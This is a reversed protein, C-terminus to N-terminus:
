DGLLEGVRRLLDEPTFPKELVEGAASLAQDAYGSTYLVRMAPREPAIREVLASGSMGPLVIDTVLLDIQEPTGSLELAEDPGSAELVSYGGRELVERVVSRVLDEDEVLLVRGARRLPPLPAKEQIAAEDLAPLVITFTSGAGLESEVEITGGSQEVIGYVTALGLGTGKGPEKTTFFPEFLHSRAEPGIGIGTDRVELLADRGRRRTAITLRGGDPMADRANVVLNLMVQELQGRDAHVTPPEEALDTVLDITEGILRRLLSELDTVVTNLEIPQPALTQRRSFALLQRTLAAARDAARVIEQADRHTAADKPLDSLLFEGYGKIATLLNNFDHAIGGALRGVAEMKQSQRLQEELAKHETVDVLVGQLYLVKGEDDRVIVTEDLMNLVRGDRAITRYEISLPEGAERLRRGAAQVRELDEPHIVRDLLGPDTTWEEPTYGLMTEIHPSVFDVRGWAQTVYTALPLQEVLTRYRREALRLEAEMRRQETLDVGVGIVGMTAADDDRLPELHFVFLRGELEAECEVSEGALAREHAAIAGAPDGDAARERVSEGVQTFLSSQALEGFAATVRLDVDTTWVRAPLQELLLRLSRLDINGQTM